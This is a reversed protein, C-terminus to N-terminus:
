RSTSASAPKDPVAFVQGPYILDPDRIQSANAQFIETYRLGQGYRRSAILWLSDGPQVVVSSGDAVQMKGAQTRSFPAEVRAAVKGDPGIRDLRLTHPGAAVEATPSIAWRGAPDTAVEGVATDDIYLRLHSGPPATGSLRIGGKADYDVVGLALTGTNAQLLTAPANAPALVAVAPANSGPPVVVIVPAAGGVDAGGAARSSLSLEQGGANLPKDPLVVFEGQANTKATGVPQGNQRLTVESDPAARGAVVAGGQPNVRVIDFRPAQAAPAPPVSPPAVVALPAAPTPVPAAPHVGAFSWWIAVALVALGAILWGALRLGPRRLKIPDQAM